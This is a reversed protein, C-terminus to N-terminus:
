VDLVVKKLNIKPSPNNSRTVFQSKLIYRLLDSKITILSSAVSFISNRGMCNAYTHFNITFLGM